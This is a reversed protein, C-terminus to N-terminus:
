RAGGAHGFGALRPAERKLRLEAEVLALVEELGPRQGLARIRRRVVALDGSTLTALRALRAHLVAEEEPALPRELLPALLADFAIRARRPDLYGLELKLAFRRLSAPDLEGFLNTTCVVVGRYAELQQLLENVESVEWSRVAGRRDRLFSDAEDLLLLADEREAERFAAALNKETQGVWMSQLDSVRRYVVPRGMCHALYRAYESKGTGPPGHLCLSLGPGPGQRWSALRGTLAELDETCAVADLRFTTPDFRSGAHRRVGLLSEAPELLREITGRDPPGGAALLRATSAASGLQAASLEFREAIEDLDTEALVGPGLHRALIRARQRAGPPRVELSLTFRRLFAPDIGEASNTIWITPVVNTELLLNFWQKSMVARRGLGFGLIAAHLEFLDELEDFLLLARSNGLLKHGLLLSALRELPVASEGDEDARGAAFLPVALDGAVLRALESKGTGTPGHLLLNVGRRRAELSAHLLDRVLRAPEELERFDTWALSTPEAETLFHSLVRERDLGPLQVLDLLGVKLSLKSHLSYDHRRDVLVLGTTLLPSRPGLAELVRPRPYRTAAALTTAAHVTSQEGVADAFDRLEESASLTLLFALAASSVEDLGFLARLLALNEAVPPGPLRPTRLTGHRAAYTAVRRRTQDSDLRDLQVGRVRGPLALVRALLRTSSHRVRDPDQALRTAVLLNHAYDLVCREFPNEELDDPTAPRTARAM